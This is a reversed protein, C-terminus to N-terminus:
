KLVVTAVILEINIVKTQTDFYETAIEEADGFSDAEVTLEEYDGSCTKCDTEPQGAEKVLIGVRYLKIGNTESM